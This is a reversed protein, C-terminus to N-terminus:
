QAAPAFVVVPRYKAEVAALLAILNGASDLGAVPEDKTGFPDQERRSIWKGFGLDAVENSSLERHPFLPRAADGLSLLPVDQEEGLDALPTAGAIEYAGVRTRRLKTLHGGTGLKKGLDRALARIYTGSSCEVQADLDLVTEGTELVISRANLWSFSKITVPRPELVVNEGARVREYARRGDVKIASVASPIQMIEGTLRAVAADIISPSLDSGDTSRVEVIAGDADETSTTVGLRITAAYGKDAGVLYHLLRTGRNIGLVLVGTAMPDLTGAHGVRRTGCLRRVRSVVDHSTMGAPKDVILLGDKPYTM